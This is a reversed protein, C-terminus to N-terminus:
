RRNKIKSEAAEVEKRVEEIIEKCQMEEKKFKYVEYQIFVILILGLIFILVLKM